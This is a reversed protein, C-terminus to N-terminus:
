VLCWMIMLVFCKGHQCLITAFWASILTWRRHSLRASNGLIPGILTNWRRRFKWARQGGEFGSIPNVSKQQACIQIYLSQNSGKVHWQLYVRFVEVPWVFIVTMCYMRVDIYWILSERAKSKSRPDEQRTHSWTGNQSTPALPTIPHLRHLWSCVM